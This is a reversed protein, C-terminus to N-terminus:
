QNYTYIYIYVYIIRDHSGIHIIPLDHITRSAFKAHVKCSFVCCTCQDHQVRSFWLSIRIIIIIILIIIIMMINM